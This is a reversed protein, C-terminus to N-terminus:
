LHISRGEQLTGDALEYYAVVALHAVLGDLLDGALEDRGGGVEFDLMVLFLHPAEIAALHGGDFFHGLFLMAMRDVRVHVLFLLLLLKGAYGDLVGFLPVLAIRRVPHPPPHHVAPVRGLVGVEVELSDLTGEDCYASKFRAPLPSVPLCSRSKRPSSTTKLLLNSLPFRFAATLILLRSYQSYM